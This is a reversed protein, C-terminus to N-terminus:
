HSEKVENEGDIEGAEIRELYQKHAKKVAVEQSEAEVIETYQGDFTIQYTKM